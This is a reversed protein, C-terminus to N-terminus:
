TTEYYRNLREVIEYSCFTKIPETKLSVDEGRVNQPSTENQSLFASVLPAIDEISLSSITKKIDFSNKALLQILPTLKQLNGNSLYSTLLNLIDM